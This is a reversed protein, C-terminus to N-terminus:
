ILLVRAAYKKLTRGLFKIQKDTEFQYHTTCQFRLQLKFLVLIYLHKRKEAILNPVSLTQNATAM